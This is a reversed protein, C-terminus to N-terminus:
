LLIQDLKNIVRFGLEKLEPSFLIAIGGEEEWEVLNHKYDDILISGKTQVMKTKSIARPVPIVTIDSFHNRIFNVKEIAEELSTVHSLISVEYKGSDIIRQISGISDNIIPTEVILKKWDLATYFASIKDTESPYNIGLNIMMQKTVQITDLIVGDFDIYVNTM